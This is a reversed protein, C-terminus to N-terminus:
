KDHLGRKHRLLDLIIFMLGGTLLMPVPWWLQGTQPLKSDQSSGPKDPSNPDTPPPNPVDTIYTNKIVFTIGEQVVTVTYDNLEKEAVTWTYSSDLNDWVHRWNNDARLAVTEYVSGDRLLHVEIEHPREKEHGKDAWVKLVKRTIMHNESDPQVHYKPRVTICYLWDNTGTDLTPLSVMFPAADYILEEQIHRHGLVLYLGQKLHLAKNPLTLRGTEDTEGSDTPPINDRLVYGELTSPLAKWADDNTRNFDINFQDFPKEPTLEGKANVSAVRYIAFGAGSLGTNENQYLITMQMPQKSDMSETALAPTPQLLLVVMFVMILLTLQKRLKMPM